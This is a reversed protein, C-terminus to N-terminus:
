SEKSSAAGDAAPTTQTKRRKAATETHEQWGLPEWVQELQRRTTAVPDADPLDPHTMALQEGADRDAM